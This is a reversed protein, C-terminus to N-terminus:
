FNRIIELPTGCPLMNFLVHMNGFGIFKKNCNSMFFAEVEFELLKVLKLNRLKVGGLPGMWTSRVVEGCLEVFIFNGCFHGTPSQAFVIGFPILIKVVHSM